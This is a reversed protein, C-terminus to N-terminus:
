PDTQPGHDQDQDKGIVQWLLWLPLIVWLIAIYTQFIIESM